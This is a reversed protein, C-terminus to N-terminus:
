FVRCYSVIKIFCVIVIFTRAANMRVIENTYTTEHKPLDYGEFEKEEAAGVNMYISYYSYWTIILIFDIWNWPDRFYKLRYKMLETFEILSFGIM